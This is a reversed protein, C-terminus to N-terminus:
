SRLSRGQMLARATPYIVGQYPVAGQHFQTKGLMLEWFCWGCKEERVVPMVFDFPQGPRGAVENVIVPKGLAKMRRIDERLDRRYNHIAVIDLKDLLPKNESSDMFGVCRPHNPDQEKVCDLFHGLFTGILKKDEDKNFSTCTPENMVDWLVIRKDDKHAGVVDRVYRELKSWHAAGLRNQGPCAMWDKERYKELDPFEGFCSDFVVPMM